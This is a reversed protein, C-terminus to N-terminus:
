LCLEQVLKGKTFCLKLMVSACAEAALKKKDLILSAWKNAENISVTIGTVSNNWDKPLFNM